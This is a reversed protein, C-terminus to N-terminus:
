MSEPTSVGLLQLGNALVQRAADILALRALRLNVDEVLFQHSNYYSHFDTALDRLYNTLQHPEYQTAATVIVEKYRALTGLLTLEHSQTLLALHTLAQSQDYSMNKDALQRFVSCIRAHAYQVYYVPNDNSQSKALDLDFDVHQESRRMVYFYRAADNGVEERLERLTVFSGSRTSMQAQQGSRYLTVFQVLLVTLRESAFGSAELGAKIRPYYGHHDSGLIDIIIDFGREFKNIHYALDNAFYTRQGNARQLVRDKEDNYDTARFWLAGEQEYVLNTKQLREIMRDVVDSNALERESFWKEFEVGFGALDDRIDAVIMDLSLNFVKEYSGKGLLTRARAIVADIYIEKDGGEPEDKPLDSFLQDAAVALTNGYKEKLVFAIDIVYTGKYANAPFAFKETCLELYRLWVSVALIDMQRGADNVYYERHVSYGIAQLLDSVIAGYAAHRGHGVHLPGTPNSSVFEVLVRKGKGVDAHGYTQGAQIIDAVVSFLADPALFFNIFGPGAIEVKAVKSSAPLAKVIMEAIERPKRKAEKALMMAINCALDGHQKDKVNDIQIRPSDIVLDGQQQLTQLAAQILHEIHQKM